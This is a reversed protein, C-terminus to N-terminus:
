ELDISYGNIIEVEDIIEDIIKVWIFIGEGRQNGGSGLSERWGDAAAARREEEERALRLLLGRGKKEPRIRATASHCVDEIAAAARAM